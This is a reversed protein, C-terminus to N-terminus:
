AKGRLAVGCPRGRGDVALLPGLRVDDDEVRHVGAARAPGDLLPKAEYIDAQASGALVEDQDGASRLHLRREQFREQLREPRHHEVAHARDPSPRLDRLWDELYWLRNRIVRFEQTVLDGLALSKTRDETVVLLPEAAVLHVPLRPQDTPY